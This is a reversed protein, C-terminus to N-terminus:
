KGDRKFVKLNSFTHIPKFDPVVLQEWRLTTCHLIVYRNIMSLDDLPDLNVLDLDALLMDFEYELNSCRPEEERVNIGIEMDGALEGVHVIGPTIKETYGEYYEPMGNICALMGEARGIGFECIHDSMKAYKTITDMYRNMRSPTDRWKTFLDAIEQHPKM